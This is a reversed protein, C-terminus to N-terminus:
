VAAGASDQTDVTPETTGYRLVGSTSPWYYYSVIGINLVLCSFASTTGEGVMLWGFPNGSADQMPFKWENSTLAMQAM